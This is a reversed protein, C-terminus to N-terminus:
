EAAVQPASNAEQRKDRKRRDCAMCSRVSAARSATISAHLHTGPQLPAARLLFSPVQGPRGDCRRVVGAWARWNTHCPQVLRDSATAPRPGFPGPHVKEGRQRRQAPFRSTGAGSERNISISPVGAANCGVWAGARVGDGQQMAGQGLGQDSETVRSGEMGAAGGGHLRVIIAPAGAHPLLEAGQGVSLIAAEDRTLGLLNHAAAQSSEMSPWAAPVSHKPNTPVTARKVYAPLMREISCPVQRCGNIICMGQVQTQALSCQFGGHAAPRPTCTLAMPWHGIAVRCPIGEDRGAWGCGVWREAWVHRGHTGGM